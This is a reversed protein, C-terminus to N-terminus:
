RDPLPYRSHSTGPTGACAVITCGDGELKPVKNGSAKPANPAHTSSPGSSPAANPIISISELHVRRTASFASADNATLAPLAETPFGPESLEVSVLPNTVIYREDTAFGNVFLECVDLTIRQPLEENDEFAISEGFADSYGAFGDLLSSPIPINTSHTVIVITYDEYMACVAATRVVSQGSFNGVTTTPQPDSESAESPTRISASLRVFPPASLEMGHANFGRPTRFLVQVEHLQQILILVPLGPYLTGPNPLQVLSALSSPPQQKEGDINTPQYSWKRESELWLSAVVDNGREHVYVDLINWSTIEDLREWVCSLGAGFNLQSPPFFAYLYRDENSASIAIPPEYLAPSQIIQAPLDLDFHVSSNSGAQGSVIQGHLIPRTPHASFLVNGESWCLPSGMSKKSHLPPQDQQRPPSPVFLGRAKEFGVM